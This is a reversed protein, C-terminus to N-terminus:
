FSHVTCGSDPKRNAVFQGYMQFIVIADYIASVIDNDGKQCWQIERKLNINRKLNWTLSMVSEQTIVIKIWVLFQSFSTLVKNLIQLISCTRSVLNPMPIELSYNGTPSLSVALKYRKHTSPYFWGVGVWILTLSFRRWDKM